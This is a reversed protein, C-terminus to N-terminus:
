LDDKMEGYRWSRIFGNDSCASLILGRREGVEYRVGECGIM